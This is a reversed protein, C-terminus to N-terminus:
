LDTGLHENVAAEIQRVSEFADYGMYAVNGDEDVYVQLPLAQFNPLPDAGNLDGLEDLLLRYTVGTDEVLQVADGRQTEQFDIGVVAVEDGHEQHFQELLPMEERCTTCTTAWFNILMPGELSRLGVQQDGHFEVLTVDPLPERDATLTCGALLLSATAAGVVASRV